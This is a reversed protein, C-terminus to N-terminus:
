QGLGAEMAWVLAEARSAVGIKSYISYLHNHITKPSVSLMDALQQNSFGKTLAALVERERETLAALADTAEAQNKEMSQLKGALDDSLAVTEGAMVQHIAKVLIEVPVDKLLFGGISLTMFKKIVLPDDQNTLIIIKAEPWATLIARSAEYGTVKPLNIDMLIVDPKHLMAQVIAEEGNAAEAVVSLRPQAELLQRMGQRVITHDDVLLLTIPRNLGTNDTM